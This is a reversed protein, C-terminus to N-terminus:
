GTIEFACRGDWYEPSSFDPRERAAALLAFAVRMGPRAGGRLVAKDPAMDRAMEPAM